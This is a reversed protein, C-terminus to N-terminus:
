YVPLTNKQEILHCINYGVDGLLKKFIQQTALSDKLIIQAAIEAKDSMSLTSIKDQDRLFSMFDERTLPNITQNQMIPINASYFITTVVNTYRNINGSIAAFDFVTVKESKKNYPM